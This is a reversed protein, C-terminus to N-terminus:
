FFKFKQIKRSALGVIICSRENYSSCAVFLVFMLLFVFLADLHPTDFTIRNNALKNRKLRRPAIDFMFKAKAIAEESLRM